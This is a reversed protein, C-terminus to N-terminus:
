MKSKYYYWQFWGKWEMGLPLFIFLLYPFQVSSLTMSKLAPFYYYTTSSYTVGLYVTITVVLLLL